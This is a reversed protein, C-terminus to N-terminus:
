SSDSNKNDKGNSKLPNKNIKIAFMNNKILTKMMVGWVHAACRNEGPFVSTTLRVGTVRKNGFNVYNVMILNELQDLIHRVIKGVTDGTPFKLMFNKYNQDIKAGMITKVCDVVFEINDGWICDAIFSNYADRESLYSRTIISRERLFTKIKNNEDRENYKLEMILRFTWMICYGGLNNKDLELFSEGALANKNNLMFPGDKCAMQVDVFENAWNPDMYDILKPLDGNGGGSGNVNIEAIMPADSQKMKSDNSGNELIPDGNSSINIDENPADPLGYKHEMENNNQKLDEPDANVGSAINNNNSNDVSQPSDHGGNSEDGSKGSNDDNSLIMDMRANVIDMLGNSKVTYWEFGADCELENEELVENIIARQKKYYKQSAEMLELVTKSRYSDNAPLLPNRDIPGPSDSQYFLDGNITNENENTNTGAMQRGCCSDQVIKGEGLYKTFM